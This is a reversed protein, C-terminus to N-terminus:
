CRCDQLRPLGAGLVLPDMNCTAHDAHTGIYVVQVGFTVDLPPSNTLGHLFLWLKGIFSRLEM